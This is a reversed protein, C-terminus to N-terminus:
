KVQDLLLVMQVGGDIADPLLPYVRGREPGSSLSPKGADPWKRKRQLAERERARVSHPLPEAGANHKGATLFSACETRIGDFDFGGTLRTTQVFALLRS